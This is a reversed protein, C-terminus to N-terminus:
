LSTRAYPCCFAPFHPCANMSGVPNSDATGSNSSDMIVHAKSLAAVTIQRVMFEQIFNPRGTNRERLIELCSGCM